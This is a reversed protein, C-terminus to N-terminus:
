KHTHTSVLPLDALVLLGQAAISWGPVLLPSIPPSPFAQDGGAAASCLLPAWCPIPTPFLHWIIAEDLFDCARGRAAAASFCSCLLLPFEEGAAVKSM